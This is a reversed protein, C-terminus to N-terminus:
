ELVKAFNCFSTQNAFFIARVLVIEKKKHIKAFINKLIIFM